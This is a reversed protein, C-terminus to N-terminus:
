AAAKRPNKRRKRGGREEMEIVDITFLCKELTDATPNWNDSHVNYLSNRHLGARRAFAAKPLEPRLSFFNRIKDLAAKVESMGGRYRADAGFEM